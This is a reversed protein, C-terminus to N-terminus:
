PKGFYQNWYLFMVNSSQLASEDKTHDEGAGLRRLHDQWYRYRARSFGLESVGAETALKGAENVHPQVDKHSEVCLRILKDGAYRLWVNVIPLLDRITLEAYCLESNDQRDEALGPRAAPIPKPGLVRPTELTDRMIQLGVSSLSDGRVGVAALRAIGAALNRRHARDASPNMAQQWAAVLDGVLFPLDIWVRGDSTVAEQIVPTDKERLDLNEDESGGECVSWEEDGLDSKLSRRLRRKAVGLERAWLIQYVLRDQAPHDAEIHKSAQIFLYWVDHISDEFIPNDRDSMGYVRMTMSVCSGITTWLTNDNGRRAEPDFM